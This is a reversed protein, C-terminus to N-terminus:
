SKEKEDDMIIYYPCKIQPKIVSEHPLPKDEDIEKIRSDLFKRVDEYKPLKYCGTLDTYIFHTELIYKDDGQYQASAQEIRDLKELIENDIYDQYMNVFDRYYGFIDQTPIFLYQNHVLEHVTEALPILGVLLNYHLLMVEKSVMEIDINERNFIRKNLVIMCIEYLTLPDHHIHIKIKYTDINNVNEYFSCKDMKMNERFFKIMRRYEFSNRCDKEVDQIFKIKDKEDYLDYDEIDYKPLADIKITEMYKDDAIKMCLPDRM